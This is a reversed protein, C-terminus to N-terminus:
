DFVGDARLREYEDDPLGLIGKYVEENDRGLTPGPHTFRPPSAALRFGLAEYDQEGIVPHNMRAFHGRHALQPDRYCDGLDAVPNAEIGLAQLREALADRDQTVTWEEIRKELEDVHELRGATTAFRGDAWGSGGMQDVLTRWEDDSWIAIAIWREDGACRFAGHPAGDPSRNGLRGPPTGEVAAQVIAEGLSYIACEVQSVDLYAGMTVTRRRRILAATVAAAAFRPALSDTITGYPGLPEGDPWGTVHNFGSLASGQGGFGPYDREPGTQGHLCTSIMVLDPKVKVLDEYALGFRAMAGPAFNEAVVDAWGVLRLAIVHAEPHKLNLTIALKNCNFAAFMPSAELSRQTATLAYLRLFDPRVSSEVRVVTAGQDALYRTALPGAAGAGFELVNVGDFAQEPATTITGTDAFWPETEAREGIRPAAATAGPVGDAVVFRKPIPIRGLDPDDVDAFLERARYQHSGLIERATNAPALMLGRELAADYLETMTKTAFFRAFPESIADVEDQSLTTHSYSDWERDILASTALGEEAIWAVLRKLGPIRAPGGRLGFSVFGDACPWIERQMTPGVRMLAGARSGRQGTMGFQGVRSMNAMCHAEQMSVDVLQGRRNLTRQHLAALIAAAADAGGHYWSTPFSCRLPARRPDGTMFMTGSQALVGLDSARWSAKPGDLGFPTIACWVRNRHESRRLADLEGRGTEIVVHVSRSLRGVLDLGDNTTPDAVISRKGANLAAFAYRRARGPHGGPPEVLAVDAGFDALIRGCLWGPPDTLDLVRIGGLMETRARDLGALEM